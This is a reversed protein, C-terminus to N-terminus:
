AGPYGVQEYAIAGSILGAIYDALAGGEKTLLIEKILQVLKDDMKLDSKQALFELLRMVEVARDQGPKSAAIAPLIHLAPAWEILLRIKEPFAQIPM